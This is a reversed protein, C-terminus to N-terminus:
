GREPQLATAKSFQQLLQAAVATAIAGPHKSEIGAVGIPCIVKGLQIESFGRSRLKSEFQARKTASGILGIFAADDRRLIQEILDFDLAHSHTM